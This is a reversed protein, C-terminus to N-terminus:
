EKADEIGTQEITLTLPDMIWRRDEKTIQATMQHRATIAMRFNSRFAQIRGKENPCKFALRGTVALISGPKQSRLDVTAWYASEVRVDRIPQQIDTAFSCDLRSAFPIEFSDSLGLLDEIVVTSLPPGFRALSFQEFGADSIKASYSGVVALEAIREGLKQAIQEAMGEQLAYTKVIFAYADQLEWPRVGKASNKHLADKNIEIVQGSQRSLEAGMERRTLFRFQTREWTTREQITKLENVMGTRCVPSASCADLMRLLSQRAYVIYFEGGGAGNHSEDGGARAFAGLLLVSLFFWNKM